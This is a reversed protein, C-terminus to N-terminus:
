NKDILKQLEDHNKGIMVNVYSVTVFNTSYDIELDNWATKANRSVKKVVGIMINPPFISSFGSTVITDGVAAQCHEPINSASGRNASFGNWFVSCLYNNKKFKGSVNLDSSLMSLVVSYNESVTEVVGVVGDANVVGMNKIIGDKQGKNIILYNNIKDVSKSVIKAPLVEFESDQALLTEYNKREIFNELTNIKEELIANKQALDDNKGKLAFYAAANNVEAYFASSVNIMTKAFFSKQFVSHNVIVVFAVTELLLFILFTSFRQFFKFFSNM